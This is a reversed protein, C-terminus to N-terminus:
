ASGEGTKRFPLVDGGQAQDTRGDDPEPPTLNRGDGSSPKTEDVPPQEAERGSGGPRPGVGQSGQVAHEGTLAGYLEVQEAIVRGIRRVGEQIEGDSVGSFNLRMSNRGRGDVYAAQGPVFAVDDRLARALLDGTDIYHPLTAWIFLGGEPETWTAGAPFHENLSAIMTDRRGRYIRVLSDIYDGWRGEAFYERVFHQTLTSTCLDAAQKGLVVKEMVPPPAVAWGLRIGPSLIKSFTGVYIVFDGGDLQYLPPLPDGGFRLLGYPNDEVLLLERSRALEVLRRRRELSLTVGAPNQFTPVSYVFKPRRGERDLRGLVGELLDVRMGEDDCEIQVVDAQYSCFVPVAGPYTPAECVIVDGPDVLTKCVLDIAQQGGTTVIVDDHDPLMGEAGMVQVICDVTEAFGETPGYQLAEATSEQAITTMQAAFTAAPFTSTDPLGGALSIVEPRATIAMLDRMASSRMVKTRGAFLGAYRELDRTRTHARRRHPAEDEKKPM